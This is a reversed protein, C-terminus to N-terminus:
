RSSAVAANLGRRALNAVGLRTLWANREQIFLGKKTWKNKMCAGFGIKHTKKVEKTTAEDHSLDATEM